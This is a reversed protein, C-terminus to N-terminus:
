RKKSFVKYSLWPFICDEKEMRCLWETNVTNSALADFVLNFNRICSSFAKEAYEPLNGEYIMKQWAAAQAILVEKAGLNLIRAKIGTETPFRDTLDIMRESAIRICDTMWNNSSDLLDEGYGAGEASCPYPTIKPLSFQKGIHDKCFSLTIKGDSAVLRIVQELWSVGEHWSDGILRAPIVCTLVNDKGELFQEAEELKSLKKRYFDEADARVQAKAKEEDYAANDKGQRENAWYKYGTQLRSSDTGLFNKLRKDHIEFGIDRLECRYANANMYGAAQGDATGTIDDPTDFDRAFLVLSKKSRVPSFIGTEPPDNCFLISRTDVITYNMGYSRLVVDLNETWGLYPIFFGEGTEGFFSRQSHLGVDVQAHLAEKMDRYHPLYSYTAATPILELMGKEAFERFARILDGSWTELFDTKNKEMTRLCRQVNHFVAENEKNAELEEEGLRIMKELWAVYKKKTSKHALLTCLPSSLVLGLKFPVADKELSRFMNLLPLYSNSIASFLVSDECAFNEKSNFNHIFAQDAALVIILDKSAM